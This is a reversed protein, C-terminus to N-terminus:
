GIVGNMQSTGSGAGTGAAAGGMVTNNTLNTANRWSEFKTKIGNSLADVFNRVISNALDFGTLGGMVDDALSTFKTTTGRSSLLIPANIANFSGPSSPTATSTGAFTDGAMTFSSIWENFADKIRNQISQTLTTEGATGYKPDISLSFATDFAGGTGSGTWSGLGAGTVGVGGFKVASQWDSWAQTVDECIHAIYDDLDKTIQSEGKPVENGSYKFNSGLESIIATKLEASTPTM